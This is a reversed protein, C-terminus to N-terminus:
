LGNCMAKPITPHKSSCSVKRDANHITCLGSGVLFARPSRKISMVIDKFLFSRRGKAFKSSDLKTWSANGECKAEQLM